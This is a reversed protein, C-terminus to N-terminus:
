PPDMVWNEWLKARRPQFHRSTSGPSGSFKRRAMPGRVLAIKTSFRALGPPTTTSRSATAAAARSAPMGSMTSLVIADGQSHWGKSHPASRTTWEVVLNREPWPVEM